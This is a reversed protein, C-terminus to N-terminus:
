FMLNQPMDPAKQKSPQLIQDTQVWASLPTSHMGIVSLRKFEDISRGIFGRALLAPTLRM